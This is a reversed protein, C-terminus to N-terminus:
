DEKGSRPLGMAALLRDMEQYPVVEVDPPGRLIPRHVERAITGLGIVAVRRRAGTM